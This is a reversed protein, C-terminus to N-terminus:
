IHKQIIDIVPKLKALQEDSKYCNCALFNDMCKQLVPDMIYISDKWSNIVEKTSVPSVQESNGCDATAMSVDPAVTVSSALLVQNNLVCEVLKATKNADFYRRFEKKLIERERKNENLAKVRNQEEIVEYNAIIEDFAPHKSDVAIELLSVATDNSASLHTEPEIVNNNFFSVSEKCLKVAIPMYRKAEYINKFKRTFDVLNNLRKNEAIYLDMLSNDYEGNNEYVIRSFKSIALSNDKDVVREDGKTTEILYSWSPKVSKGSIWSDLLSEKSVMYDECLKNDRIIKLIDKRTKANEALLKLKDTAKQLNSVMYSEDVKMVKVWSNISVIPYKNEVVGYIKYQNKSYQFAERILSINNHLVEKVNNSLKNFSDVVNKTSPNCLSEFCSVVNKDKGFPLSKIIGITNEILAKEKELKAEMTLYKDTTSKFTRVSSILAALKQGSTEYINQKVINYVKRKDIESYKRIVLDVGNINCEKRIQRLIRLMGETFDTDNKGMVLKQNDNNPMTIIIQKDPIFAWEVEKSDLTINGDANYMKIKMANDSCRLIDLVESKLQEYAM